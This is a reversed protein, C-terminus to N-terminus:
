ATRQAGSLDRTAKAAEPWEADAPAPAPRDTLCRETAAPLRIRFITGKDLESVVEVQGNHAELIGAAVSLGLGTGKGEGKTTYFPEFIHPLHEASIGKGTDAIELVVMGDPGQRGRLTLRGGGPMADAANLMLNILVQALQGRDAPVAGLNEPLDRVVEIRGRELRPRVFMLAEDCIEQVQVPELKLPEVRSMGLLRRVIMEIRYLGADMLDLLKCNQETDTPNRRIIRTANQLGDLPNNVEHAVMAALEGLMALKERRVLEKQLRQQEGVNAELQAAMRDLAEALKVFDDNGQLAVRHSLDGRGIADAAERLRHLRRRLAHNGVRAIGWGAVVALLWMSGVGLWQDRRLLILGGAALSVLVLYTLLLRQRLGLHGVLSTLNAM